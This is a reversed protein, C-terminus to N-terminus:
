PTFTITFLQYSPVVNVINRVVVTRVTTTDLDLNELSFSSAPIQLNTLSALTGRATAGAFATTIQLITSASALSGLYVAYDQGTTRRSSSLSLGRLPSSWDELQAEEAPSLGAGTPASAGSLLGWARAAHTAELHSTYIM